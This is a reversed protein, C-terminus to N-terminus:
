QGIRKQVLFRRQAWTVLVVFLFFVVTIAAGRGIQQDAYAAQVAEYILTTTAGSPGGQTMINVQDFLRFALITTTIVVFITANRLQPLTVHVFRRWRGAGDIEAAEYLQRPIQQLAALFIVTQFGVGQWVSMVIIAPFAWQPDHLFDRAQWTGASIWTLLRNMMAEPGPAYILIWVVSLLAFPFVVPMFFLTRAVTRGALPQNLMIALVLALSTQLPVVVLAFVINHILAQFFRPDEGLRRFQEWGIFETPLPSGLRLNSFSFVFALVFPLLVFLGLWLLAPAVFCWAARQEATSPSTM